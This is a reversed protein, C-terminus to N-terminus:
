LQVLSRPGETVNPRYTINWRPFCNQRLQINRNLLRPARPYAQLQACACLRKTCLLETCQFRHSGIMAKTPEPLQRQYGSVYFGMDPM